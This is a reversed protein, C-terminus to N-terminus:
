YNSNPEDNDEIFKGLQFDYTGLFEDDLTYADIKYLYRYEPKVKGDVRDILEQLVESSAVEKWVGDIYGGNFQSMLYYKM